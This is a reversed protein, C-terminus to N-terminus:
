CLDMKRYSEILNSKEIALNFKTKVAEFGHLGDLEIQGPHDLYELAASAFSEASRDEFVKGGQTELIVREISECNSSIVPKKQIYYQFLKNPSSCDTQVSKLHPIVCIDAAKIMEYAEQQKKWGHFQVKDAIGLHKVIYKLYTLYAGQGVIEFSINAHKECISAFGELAFQLGRNENIGGVYIFRIIEDNKRAQVPSLNFHKLDPVNQYISVNKAGLNEIRQKMEDVVTIVSDYQSVYEKEYDLWEQDKHLLKALKKKTHATEMLHYPWNEHLDLISKLNFQKAIALVPKALPLDHVHIADFKIEKCISKLHKKWFSFYTPVRLAGVSSKYVLQSIKKRHITYGNYKETKAKNSFTFCALHVEIGEELLASIENEVRVDTPFDRELVMLVKKM